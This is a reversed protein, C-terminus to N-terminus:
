PSTDYEGYDKGNAKSAETEGVLDSEQDVNVALFASAGEHITVHRVAPFIQDGVGAFKFTYDGAYLRKVYVVGLQNSPVAQLQRGESNFVMVTCSIPKDDRTLRM